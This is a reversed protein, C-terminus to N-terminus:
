QRACGDDPATAIDWTTFWRHMELLWYWALVYRIFLADDNNEDASFLGWSSSSFDLLLFPFLLLFDGFFHCFGMRDMFRNM